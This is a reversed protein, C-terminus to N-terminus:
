PKPPQSAAVQKDNQASKVVAEPTVQGAISTRAERAKAALPQMPAASAMSHVSGLLLLKDCAQATNRGTDPGDTDSTCISWIMMSM